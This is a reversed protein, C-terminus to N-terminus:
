VVFVVILSKMVVCKLQYLLHHWHVFASFAATVMSEWQVREGNLGEERSINKRVNFGAVKEQHLSM